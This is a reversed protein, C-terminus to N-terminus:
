TKALQGPAGDFLAAYAARRAEPSRGLAAYHPHFTVLDSDEGLANTRYSSWPYDGPHRALGARVPNVEIYRMCSFLQARARIPTADYRAEWLAEGHGYAEVLYGTYASAISPM